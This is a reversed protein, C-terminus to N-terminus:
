KQQWSWQMDTGAGEDVFDMYLVGSATLDAYSDTNGWPIYFSSWIMKTEETSSALYKAEGSDEDRSLLGSPTYFGRQCFDRPSM